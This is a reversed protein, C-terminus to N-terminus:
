FQNCYHWTVLLRYMSVAASLPGHACHISKPAYRKAELSVVTQAVPQALNKLKIDMLPQFLKKRDAKYRRTATGSIVGDLSSIYADIAEGVTMQEYLARRSLTLGPFLRPFNILFPTISGKKRICTACPSLQATM